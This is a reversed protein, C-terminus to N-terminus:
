LNKEEWEEGPRRTVYFVTGDAGVYFTVEDSWCVTNYDRDEAIEDKAFVLRKGKNIQSIWPKKRPRRKAKGHAKLIKRVLNRGLKLGSKTPTGLAILTDRPNANAHRLLARKQRDNTKKKAGPRPANEFPNEPRNKARDIIEYIVSRPRRFRACISPVSEGADYRGWIEARELPTTEKRPKKPCVVM